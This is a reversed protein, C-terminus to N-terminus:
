LSCLALWGMFMARATWADRWHDAHQLAIRFMTVVLGTAAGGVCSLLALLLLGGDHEQHDVMNIMRRDHRCRRSYTGIDPRRFDPLPNDGLM